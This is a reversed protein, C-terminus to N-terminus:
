DTLIEIISELTSIEVGVTSHLYNKTKESLSSGESNAIGQIYFSEGNISSARVPKDIKALDSFLYDLMLDEESMGVLAGLVYSLAGTRDTGRVCHFAVPYNTPDALTYFFDKISDVNDENTFINTDGFYMPTSVYKVNKGLPSSSIGVVEDYGDFAETRRLDIDTKIKLENLLTDMGKESPASVFKNNGITGYNFQATRYIMGQKFTKNEGISWGGLDRVNEVGDVYINRPAVDNIKFSLVDSEFKKSSHVSTLQYYYNQNIKLNYVDVSNEKTTYTLPNSMDPLESVNLLYKSAKQEIDNTETWSFSVPLPKSLSRKGYTATNDEILQAPDDSEILTKQDVTHISISTSIQELSLDVEKPVKVADKSCATILLTAAFLTFVTKNKM